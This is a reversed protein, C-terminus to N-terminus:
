WGCVASAACRWRRGARLGLRADAGERVLAEAAGARHVLLAPAALGRDVGGDLAEREAEVDIAFDPYLDYLSRVAVGPLGDLARVLARNARSRDPYPHALIVLTTM